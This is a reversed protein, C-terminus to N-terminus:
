GIARLIRILAPAWKTSAQSRYAGESHAINTELDAQKVVLAVYDDVTIVRSIYDDYPEDSRRTLTVVSSIVSSWVGACELALPTLETDEIVDHLYATALAPEGHHFVRAAVAELHNNFYSGGAYVADRHARRAIQVALDCQEMMM